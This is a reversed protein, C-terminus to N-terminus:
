NESPFGKRQVTCGSMVYLYKKLLENPQSCANLLLRNYM